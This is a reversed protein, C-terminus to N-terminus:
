MSAKAQEFTKMQKIFGEKYADGPTWLPAFGFREGFEIFEKSETASKVIETLKQVIDDPTGAPVLVGRNIGMEVPIGEETLTKMSRLPEYTCNALSGGTGIVTLVGSKVEPLLMPAHIIGADCQDGLLAKTMDKGGQYPVIRFPAKTYAQISACMVM